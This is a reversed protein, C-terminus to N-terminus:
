SLGRLRRFIVNVPGMSTEILVPSGAGLDNPLTASIEQTIPEVSATQGTVLTVGAPATLTASVSVREDELHSYAGDLIGGTVDAGTIVGDMVVFVAHGSGANGTYYMAYISNELM